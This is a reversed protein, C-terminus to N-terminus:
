VRCCSHAHFTERQHSLLSSPVATEKSWRLHPSFEHLSGFQHYRVHLVPRVSANDVGDCGAYPQRFVTDVVYSGNSMNNVTKRDAVLYIKRPLYSCYHQEVSLFYCTSYMVIKMTYLLNLYISDLVSCLDCVTYKDSDYIPM